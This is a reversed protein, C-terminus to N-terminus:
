RTRKSSRLNRQTKRKKSKSLNPSTSKDSETKLKKFNSNRGVRTLAVNEEEGDKEGDGVDGNVDDKDVANIAVDWQRRPTPTAFVLTTPRQTDEDSAKSIPTPARARARRLPTAIAAEILAKPHRNM